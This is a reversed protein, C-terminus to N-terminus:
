PKSLQKLRNHLLNVFQYNKLNWRPAVLLDAPSSSVFRELAISRPTMRIIKICLDLYRDPTYLDCSIKKESILRHLTTDRIVQLQHMKLSSIPLEVARSVTTLVDDDSEGPLGAILHIGTHLGAEASRTVADVSDQWSHGRNIIRLTEDHSTEVGFEVFVPTTRNIEALIEVLKQPFCDPRTGIVLGVVDPVSLAERWLSVLRDTATTFTSTYSQFYALYKMRPYKRGFFEKGRTIQETISSSPDCYSPSFSRNNCYICGGTSITGDRNPCSFGANVSIKQVKFDPFLSRLLDGYETYWPNM